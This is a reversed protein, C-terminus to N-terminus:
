PSPVMGPSEVRFGLTLNRETMRGETWVSVADFKLDAAGASLVMAVVALM